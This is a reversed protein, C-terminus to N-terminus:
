SVYGAKRQNWARVLYVATRRQLMTASRPMGSSFSQHGMYYRIKKRAHHLSPEASGLHRWIYVCSPPHNPDSVSRFWSVVLHLM